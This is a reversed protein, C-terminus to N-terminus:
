PNSSLEIRDPSVNTSSSAAVENILAFARTTKLNSFGKFHYSVGEPYIVRQLRPKNEPPLDSWGKELTRIFALGRDLLPEIEQEKHNNENLSNQTLLIKQEYDSLMEKLTLDPYIGKAGKIGIEKKEQKLRELDRVKQLYDGKFDKEYEKYGSMFIVKFLPLYEEKPKTIALYDYFEDHIDKKKVMEGYKACDKNVCYYYAYRGGSGGKTWCATLPHHCFGCLTFRRLPFDPNNILRHNIAHNSKKNQLDQCKQWLSTPILPKHKGVKISHDKVKLIGIYFQNNLVSQILQKSFKITKGKYNVIGKKGMFDALSSFTYSGTSYLEFIKIVDKACNMDWECNGLRVGTIKPRFYGVPPAWPWLGEDVCHYMADKVKLRRTENDTQNFGAIVIEMFNGLIDDKIPQTASRVTINLKRLERRLYLHQYADRAFRDFNYVVLMDFKGKHKKCYNLLDEVRKENETKASIAEMKLVEYVEYGENQCYIRCKEEQVPLSTNDIQKDSSTRVYILAKKM